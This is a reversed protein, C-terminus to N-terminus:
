PDKYYLTITCQCNEAIVDTSLAGTYAYPLCIIHGFETLNAPMENGDNIFNIKKKMPIWRNILITSHDATQRLDRSSVSYTGMYHLRGKWRDTQVPDLLISGTVDHLLDTRVSPNGQQANWQVFYFRFRSNRRDFPVNLQCRFRMGMCLIEDGRRNGDTNGQSPFMTQGAPMGPYWLPIVEKIVNHNMAFSQNKITRYCTEAQKLSVSKILKVLKKTRDQRVLKKASTKKNYSKKASKRKFTRGYKGAM